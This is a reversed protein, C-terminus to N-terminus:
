RRATGEGDAVSAADGRTAVPCGGVAVAMVLGLPVVAPRGVGVVARQEALVVVLLEVAFAPGDAESAVATGLQDWWAADVRRLSGPLVM